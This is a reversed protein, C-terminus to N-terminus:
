ESQIRYFRRPVSGIGSETFSTTAGANAINQGIKTWQAAPLTLDDSAYAAFSPQGGSSDWQVTFSTAGRTVGLVRLVTSTAPLGNLLPNYDYGGYSAIVPNTISGTGSSSPVFSIKTIRAQAQMQLSGFGAVPRFAEPDEPPTGESAQADFSVVAGHTIQTTFATGSSVTLLISGSKSIPYIGSIIRPTSGEAAIVNKLNYELLTPSGNNLRIAVDAIANFSQQPVSPNYYANNVTVSGTIEFDIKIRPSGTWASGTVSLQDYVNISTSAGGALFPENSLNGTQVSSTVSTVGGGTSGSRRAAGNNLSVGYPLAALDTVTAGNLTAQTGTPVTALSVGGRVRFPQGHCVATMASLCVVHLLCRRHFIVFSGSPRPSAKTM